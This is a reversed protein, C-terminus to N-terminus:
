DTAGYCFSPLVHFYEHIETATAKLDLYKFMNVLVFMCLIQPLICGLYDELDQKKDVPFYFSLTIFNNRITHIVFYKNALESIMHDLTTEPM